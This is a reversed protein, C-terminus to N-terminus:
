ADEAEMLLKSLGAIIREAEEPTILAQVAGLHNETDSTDRVGIYLSKGYRLVYVKRDYETQVEIRGDYKDQGEYPM